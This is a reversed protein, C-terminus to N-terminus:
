LFWRGLCLNSSISLLCRWAYTRSWTCTALTLITVHFLPIYVLFRYWSNTCLSRCMGNVYLITSKACLFSHFHQLEKVFASIQVNSTKVSYCLFWQNTWLGKLSMSPLVCVGVSQTGYGKHMHWTNVIGSKQHPLPRWRQVVHVGGRRLAVNCIFPERMSLFFAAM